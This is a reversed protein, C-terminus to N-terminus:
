RKEKPFMRLASEPRITHRIFPPGNSLNRSIELFKLCDYALKLYETAPETRIV